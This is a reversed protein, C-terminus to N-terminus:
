LPQQLTTTANNYDGVSAELAAETELESKAGSCPNSGQVKRNVSRQVGNLFPPEFESLAASHRRNAGNAVPTATRLPGPLKAGCVTKVVAPSIDVM